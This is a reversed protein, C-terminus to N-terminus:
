EGPRFVTAFITALCAVGAAIWLARLEYLGYCYAGAIAGAVLGLWLVLYWVWSWRDNGLLAAALRQGLKVLNGTMYTVGISVEGNREFVNNQCGMALAMCIGAGYFAGLQDLAAGFALFITVLLLVLAQRWRGSFNAALAGIIVGGVFCLIIGLPVLARPMLQAADVALRTSNGSMFSVFFGGSAMFGLADIFGALAALATAFLRESPPHRIL